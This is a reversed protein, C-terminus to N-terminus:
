IVVFIPLLIILCRIIFYQWNDVNSIGIYRSQNLHFISFMAVISISKTMGLKKIQDYLTSDTSMLDIYGDKGM